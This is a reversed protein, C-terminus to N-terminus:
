IKCHNNKLNVKFSDKNLEIIGERKMAALERSLATRDCGIYAAQQERSHPVTFYYGPSSRCYRCLYLMIKKRITGASMVSVRHELAFYKNSIGLILNKILTPQIAAFIGKPEVLSSFPIFLIETKEKAIVTVPSLFGSGSLIEGIIGGAEVTSAITVEGNPSVREAVIQGSLIIGIDSNKEGETIVVEGRKYKRYKVPTNEIFSTIEQESLGTFLKTKQLVEINSGM